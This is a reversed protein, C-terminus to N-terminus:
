KAEARYYRHRTGVEVPACWFTATGRPNAARHEVARGQLADECEAQKAFARYPHEISGVPVPVEGVDPVQVLAVIIWLKLM